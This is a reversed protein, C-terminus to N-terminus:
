GEAEDLRRGLKAALGASMDRVESWSRDIAKLGAPELRYFKKRRGGREPTPEGVWSSVLGRDELRRLTTYIAGTTLSRGTRERIERRITAGYADEDLRLVAFLLLQELRGLQDAM